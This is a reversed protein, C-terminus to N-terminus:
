SAFGSPRINSGIRPSFFAPWSSVPSCVRAMVTAAGERPPSMYNALFVCVQMPHLFGSVSLSSADPATHALFRQAGALADIPRDVRPTEPRMWRNLPERWYAATGAVFIIFLVWGLLLGSWTHLTAQSQRFVKSM